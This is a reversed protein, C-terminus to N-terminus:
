SDTGPMKPMTPPCLNNPSSPICTTGQNMSILNGPGSISATFLADLDEEGTGCGSFPPIDVEGELLGGSYVNVYKAGGNLVVKYPRVTRCNSGVDLPTGNVKVDHLRLSQKFYATSFAIRQAGSGINGTSITMPGNEFEVKASVPQFGFTLFTSEADPLKLNGLSDLRTYAGGKASPARNSTHKIAMVSILAPTRTPDNVIMAGNLKRVNAIGVAYACGFTGGTPVDTERTPDGPPAQPAESWDMEGTAQEVPCPDTDEAPTDEPEIMIGDGPREGSDGHEAPDPTGSTEADPGGPVSVTALRGDQGEAPECTVSEPASESEQGLAAASRLAIRLEGATFRVEGPAGVTVSPVEGSHVLRVAGDPPLPTGPAGLDAWQAQVSQDNQAVEVTLTATSVVADAGAPLLGDLDTRSLVVAVTAPGPQMPRGAEGTAPVEVSVEVTAAVAGSKPGCDYALTVPKTGEDAASGSGSLLGALLAVSAISALRMSRRGGRVPTKTNM